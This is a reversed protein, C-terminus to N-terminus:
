KRTAMNKAAEVIMEDDTDFDSVYAPDLTRLMDALLISMHDLDEAKNLFRSTAHMSEGFGMDISRALGHHITSLGDWYQVFTDQIEPHNNKVYDLNFHLDKIALNLTNESTRFIYMNNRRIMDIDNLQAKLMEILDQTNYVTTPVSPNPMAGGGGGSPLVHLGTIYGYAFFGALIPFIIILIPTGPSTLTTIGRTKIFPSRYPKFNRFNV